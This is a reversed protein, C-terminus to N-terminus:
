AFAEQLHTYKEIMPEPIVREGCELRLRDRLNTAVTFEFHGPVNQPYLYPMGLPARPFRWAYHEPDRAIMQSRHSDYLWLAGVWRPLKLVFPVGHRQFAAHQRLYPDELGYGCMGRRRGEHTLQWLHRLLFMDYGRFMHYSLIKAQESAPQRLLELLGETQALQDRLDDDSLSYATLSSERGLLYVTFM